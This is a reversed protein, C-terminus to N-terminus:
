AFINYCIKKRKAIIINPIKCKKLTKAENEHWFVNQYEALEGLFRRIHLDIQNELVKTEKNIFDYIAKAKDYNDLDGVYQMLVFIKSNPTDGDLIELEIKNKPM